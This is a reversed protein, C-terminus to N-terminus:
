ETDKEIKNENTFLLIRQRSEHNCFWLRDKKYRGMLLNRFMKKQSNELYLINLRQTSEGQQKPTVCVEKLIDWQEDTLEYRLDSKHIYYYRGFTESNENANYFLICENFIHIPLSGEVPDMINLQDETMFFDHWNWDEPSTDGEPDAHVNKELYLIIYDQLNENWKRAYPEDLGLMDKINWTWRRWERLGQPTKPPTNAWYWDSCKRLEEKWNKVLFWAELWPCTPNGTFVKLAPTNRRISDYITEFDHEETPLFGKNNKIDSKTPMCEDLFVIKQPKNAVGKSKSAQQLNLFFVRPAQRFEIGRYFGDWLQRWRDKQKLTTVGQWIEYCYEDLVQNSYPRIQETNADWRRMLFTAQFTLPISRVVEISVQKLLYLFSCKTKGTGRSTIAYKSRSSDEFFGEWFRWMRKHDENSFLLLQTEPIGILDQISEEEKAEPEAQSNDKKPKRYPQHVEEPVEHNISDSIAENKPVPASFVPRDIEDVFSTDILPNTKTQIDIPPEKPPKKEEIVELEIGDNVEYYDKDSASKIEWPPTSTGTIIESSNAKKTHNATTVIRRRVKQKEFWERTASAQQQEIEKSKKIAEFYRPDAKEFLHKTRREQIEKLKEKSKGKLGKNWPEKEANIQNHKKFNM